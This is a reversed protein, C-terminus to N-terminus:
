TQTRPKMGGNVGWATGFRDSVMGFVDAWFTEALPMTITGGDALAAFVRRGEEATSGARATGAGSAGDM